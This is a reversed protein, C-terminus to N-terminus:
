KPAPRTPDGKTLNLQVAARILDRLADPEVDAPGTLTVHGMKAGGARILRGPDPLEAGRWFGLNVHHKFARLYCVPGNVEYVPQAWKISEEAEPAAERVLRRLQQVTEAQWGSLAAVYADVTRDRPAPSTPPM